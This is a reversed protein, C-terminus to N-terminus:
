NKYEKLVPYSEMSNKTDKISKVFDQKEYTNLLYSNFSSSNRNHSRVCHVRHIDMLICTQDGAGSLPNLIQSQQSSHLLDCVHSTDQTAIATTYAPLQLESEVRLSPIEM